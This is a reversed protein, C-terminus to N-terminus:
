VLKESPDKGDNEVWEKCLVFPALGEEDLGLSVEVWVVVVALSSDVEPKEEGTAEVEGPEVPVGTGPYRVVEVRCGRNVLVCVVTLVVWEEVVVGHLDAQM